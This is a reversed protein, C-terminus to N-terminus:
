RSLFLLSFHTYNIDRIVCAVIICRSTFESVHFYNRSTPQLFVFEVLKIGEAFFFQFLSVLIIIDKQRAEGTHAHDGTRDERM